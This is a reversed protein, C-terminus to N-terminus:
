LVSISRAEGVFVFFRARRWALEEKASPPRQGASRAATATAERHRLDAALAQFCKYGVSLLGEDTEGGILSAKTLMNQGAVEVAEASAASAFAAALSDHLLADDAIM